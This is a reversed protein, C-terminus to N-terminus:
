RRVAPGIMPKYWGSAKTGMMPRSQKARIGHHKKAIRDAKAGRRNEEASKEKHCRAHVPRLNSEANAGGDALRKEHDCEWADAAAIPYHCV